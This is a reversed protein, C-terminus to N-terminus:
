ARKPLAVLHLGMRRIGRIIKPLAHITASQDGGGDHMLVISGAEVAGLVRHTIQKSSVRSNWDRPDVSWTVVRMRQREAERLVAADFSGGPPRFLRSVVGLSALADATKAIEEAVRERSLDALAPDVPHDWSHDGIRMGAKAVMRVIGPYREVLNGVMFFSAPAHFRELIDVVQKTQVPWPGDDFTLAVEGHSIGRGVPVERTSVVDGSISGAVTIRRIRFRRLTREPNGLHRGALREVTRRTREVRDAGDKVLIADGSELRTLSPAAGGNLEIRGPTNAPDLVAGTVSLLQGDHAELGFREVIDGLTTGPAVQHPADGVTIQLPPPSPPAAPQCATLTAACLALVASCWAASIVRREAM